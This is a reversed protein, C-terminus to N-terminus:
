GLMGEGSMKFDYIWAWRKREVKERSYVTSTVM